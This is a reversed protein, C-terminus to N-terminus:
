CTTAYGQKATVFKHCGRLCLMSTLPAKLTTPALLKNSTLLTNDDPLSWIPSIYETPHCHMAAITPKWRYFGSSVSRNCQNLPGRWWFAREFFPVIHIWSLSIESGYVVSALMEICPPYFKYWLWLLSVNIYHFYHCWVRILSPM